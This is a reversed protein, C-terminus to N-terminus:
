KNESEGATQSPALINQCRRIGDRHGSLWDDLVEIEESQIKLVEEVRERIEEREKYAEDIRNHLNHIEADAPEGTMGLLKRAEACDALSKWHDREATMAALKLELTEIRKDRLEIHTRIAMKSVDMWEEHTVKQIPTDSAPENPQTMFPIKM